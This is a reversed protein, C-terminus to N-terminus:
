AGHLRTAVGFSAHPTTRLDTITSVNRIVIMRHGAADNLFESEQQQLTM